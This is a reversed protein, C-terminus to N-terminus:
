SCGVGQGINAHSPLWAILGDSCCLSCLWLLNVLFLLLPRRCLRCGTFLLILYLSMTMSMTLTFVDFDIDNANGIGNYPKRSPLERCGDVTASVNDFVTCILATDVNSNQSQPEQQCHQIMNAFLVNNVNDFVFGNCASHQSATLISLILGVLQVESRHIVLCVQAHRLRLCQSASRCHRPQFLLHKVPASHSLQRSLIRQGLWHSQLQLLGPWVMKSHMTSYCSVHPLQPVVTALPWSAGRPM